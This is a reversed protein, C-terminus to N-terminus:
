AIGGPVDIHVQGRQAEKQGKTGQPRQCLLLAAYLVVLLHSAPEPIATQSFLWPYLGHTSRAWDAYISPWIAHGGGAIETYRPTGGAAQLAAVFNRSESVPVTTDQDGHFLWFPVDKILEAESPSIEGPAGSLPVAAAFLSPFHSVYNATGYGGLSLGTIYLRAPDVAYNSIVSDLIEATLDYEQDPDWFTGGSPLQPAVLFGRYDETQTSAILGGIFLTVHSFNNSGRQGSGHLFLTLPFKAGPEDYGPPLFLRYPMVHGQGDDYSLALSCSLDLCNALGLTPSLWFASAFVVSRLTRGTSLSMIRPQRLHDLRAPSCTSDFM